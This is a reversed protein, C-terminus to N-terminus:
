AERGEEVAVGLSSSPRSRRARSTCAFCTRGARARPRRRARPKGSARRRSPSRPCPRFCSSRSGSGEGPETRASGRRPHDEHSLRRLRGSGTSARASRNGPAGSAVRESAARSATFRWPLVVGAVSEILLDAGFGVLAVSGGCAQRRYPHRGRGWAPRGRALRPTQGVPRAAGARRGGLCLPRRAAGSALGGTRPLEFCLLDFRDGV